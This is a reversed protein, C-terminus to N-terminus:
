QRTGWVYAPYFPAMILVVPLVVPWAMSVTFKWNDDKGAEPAYRVLLGYTVAGVVYYVTVIMWWPMENGGRDCYGDCSHLALPGPLFGRASCATVKGPDGLRLLFEAVLLCDTPAGHTVVAAGATISAMLLWMM